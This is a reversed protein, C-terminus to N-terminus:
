KRILPLTHFLIERGIKNSIMKRFLMYRRTYKRDPLPYLGEKGLQELRENLINHNHTLRIVATIYEMTLEAVRRNMAQRDTSPMVSAISRLSVISDHMEDLRDKKKVKYDTWPKYGYDSCCYAKAKICFVRDCRIMLQPTFIDDSNTVESDFRLNMLMSNRFIYGWVSSTIKNKLMYETGSVPGNTPIIDSEQDPNDTTSFMVMDPNKFRAVDLCQEYSSPILRDGGNVFQIYTGTAMRLGINRADSAGSRSKRIFIIDDSYDLLKNVPCLGADDSGDDVIIIEREESQLSLALISDISDKLWQASVNHFPIIFSILPNEM